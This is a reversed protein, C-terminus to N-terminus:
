LNLITPDLSALSPRHYTCRAMAAAERLGKVPAATAAQTGWHRRTHAVQRGLRARLAARALGMAPRTLACAEEGTDLPFELAGQGDALDLEAGVV